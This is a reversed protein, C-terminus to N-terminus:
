NPGKDVRVILPEHFFPFFVPNEGCSLCEDGRSTFWLMAEHSDISNVADSDVQWYHKYNPKLRRYRLRAPGFRATAARLARVPLASAAQFALSSRLPITAKVLKERWGLDSYPRLNHGTAAWSPVNWAPLLFLLGSDKTVRRAEALAQEPNPVHEFVWISWIADFSDNPFPLATASGVVFKKHYYHAATPAIDLGTYNDVVDQLYGSGSGIELVAKDQLNFRKAFARVQDEIRFKHRANKALRVYTSAEDPVVTDAPNAIKQRQYQTSYYKKLAEVEAPPIPRDYHFPFNLAVSASLALGAALTLRVFALVFRKIVFMSKRGKDITWRRKDVVFDVL